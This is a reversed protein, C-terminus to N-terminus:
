IYSKSQKFFTVAGQFFVRILTSELDVDCFLRNFTLLKYLPSAQRWYRLILRFYGFRFWWHCLLPYLPLLSQPYIM